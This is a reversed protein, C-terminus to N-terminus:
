AEDAMDVEIAQLRLFTADIDSAFQQFKDPDRYEYLNSSPLEQQARLVM